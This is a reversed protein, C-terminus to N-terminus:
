RRCRREGGDGDGCGCLGAEEVQRLVFRGRHGDLRSGYLGGSRRALLHAARSGYLGGTEPLDTRALHKAVRHAAPAPARADLDQEQGVPAVPKVLSPCECARELVRGLRQDGGEGMHRMRGDCLRPLAAARIGHQM